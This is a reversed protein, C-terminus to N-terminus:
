AQMQRKNRRGILWGLGALAVAGPGFYWFKNALPPLMSHSTERSILDASIPKITDKNQLNGRMEIRHVLLDPDLFGQAQNPKLFQKAIWKSRVLGTKSNRHSAGRYQSNGQDFAADQAYLQHDFEEYEHVEGDHIHVTPFFLRDSWRTQFELAMPHPKGKLEKLQFVAFGYDEYEPIKSWSEKPIVFQPDLRDFDSQSPVFSAVFNGVEHVKLPAPL